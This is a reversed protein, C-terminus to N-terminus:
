KNVLKGLLMKTKRITSEEDEENIGHKHRALHSLHSLHKGISNGFPLRHHQHNSGEPSQSPSGHSSVLQRYKSISSTRPSVPSTEHSSSEAVGRAISEDSLERSSSELPLFSRYSTLQRALTQTRSRSKHTIKDKILAGSHALVAKIM